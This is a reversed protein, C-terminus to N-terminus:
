GTVVRWHPIGSSGGDPPGRHSPLLRRTVVDCAVDDITRDTAAAQRRLTELAQEVTGGTLERVHATAVFVWNRSTVPASTLFRETGDPIPVVGAQLLATSITRSVDVTHALGATSLDRCGVFYLDLTGLVTGGDILPVSTVSRFKTGHLLLRYFAPWKMALVAGPARVPSGVRFARLCPGAGVTFELREARTVELSSAGMPIRIGSPSFVTIGAGSVPLVEACAVALRQTVHAVGPTTQPGNLAACVAGFEESVTTM